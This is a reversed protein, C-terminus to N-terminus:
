LALERNVEVKLLGCFYNRQIETPQAISTVKLPAFKRNFMSVGRNWDDADPAVTAFVIVWRNGSSVIDTLKQVDHRIGNEADGFYGAANWTNLGQRGIHWHKLEIHQITDAIVIELDIRMNNHHVERAFDQIQHRNRLESMLTLLEGKFWGECQFALTHFIDFRNSLLDFHERIRQLITEM